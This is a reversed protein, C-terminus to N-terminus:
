TATPGPNTDAIPAVTETLPIPSPATANPFIGPPATVVSPLKVDSLRARLESCTRILSEKDATLVSENNRSQELQQRLEALSNFAGAADEAHCFEKPDVDAFINRGQVPYLIVAKGTLEHMKGAVIKGDVPGIVYDGPEIKRGNKYPM